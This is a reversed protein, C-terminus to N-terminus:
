FLLQDNLRSSELKQNNNSLTQKNEQKYDFTCQHVYFPLCNLCFEKTCKCEFVMINKKKNCNSCRKKM